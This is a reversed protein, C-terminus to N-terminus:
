ASYLNNKFNEGNTLRQIPYWPFICLLSFIIQTNTPILVMILVVTVWGVSSYLWVTAFWSHSQRFVFWM